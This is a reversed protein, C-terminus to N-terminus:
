SEWGPKENLFYLFDYPTMMKFGLTITIADAGIVNLTKKRGCRV